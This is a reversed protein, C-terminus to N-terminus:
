VAAQKLWLKVVQFPIHKINVYILLCVCMYVDKCDIRALMRRVFIKKKCDGNMMIVNVLRCHFIPKSSSSRYSLAMLGDVPLRYSRKEWTHV